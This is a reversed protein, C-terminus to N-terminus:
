AGGPPFHMRVVLGGHEGNFIHLGARHGQLIGMVSALGLGRGLERTTFFPDCIRELIMAPVGPGEDVLELCVTAPLEPRALPWIGQSAPSPRDAGFDTHLRLRIKGKGPEAAERANAMIAQVVEELRVRDGAIAPVPECSLEVQFTLPMQVQLTAVFAPLWAELDLREQRVMARGSFDLMKWSLGIAKRLSAEAKGLMLRLGANDGAKIAAVELFGLVGQFINNFDHAISGAMLVLSEAKQARLETAETKKRATVDQAFALMTPQGDVTVPRGLVEVSLVSGDLALLRQELLPAETGTALALRIRESAQDRDDPHVRHLVPQGVLDAATSAKLLRLAAPNLYIFRGERHLFLPVPGDEIVARFRAESEELLLRSEQRETVDTSIGEWLVSGDPQPRPKSRVRFWRWRGDVHRQRLDMAFPSFDRGSAAEAELYAPLMAPDLQSFLLGPDRVVEEAKLGCLREVGASLYLFRPAEGPRSLFQYLFSDPLQDGLIRLRAESLRLAEEAARRHTIDQVIGSAEKLQGQQTFQFLVRVSLWRIEDGVVVRHEWECPGVGAVAAEWASQVFARDEPHMVEFGSEMTIPHDSDYGYLRRLGESVSWNETGNEYIVHWSGFDGIQQALALDAESRRLSAETEFRDTMDHIISLLVVRGDREIPSSHVEVHHLRGDAGRHVFQFAGQHEAVARAMEAVVLSAPATNISQIDMQVLTEIPWGYFQAAAPNAELILGDAPDLILIVSRNKEFFARFREESLRLETERLRATTIDEVMSLHRASAGAAVPLRVMSLRAWVEHGDRHLYRKEKHVVPVAGSALERVSALDDELHEPHTLSQFDRALFEGPSYGLIDGLHANVSLFRGSESDVVAMGFPAKEFLARFQAETALLEEGRLRALLRARAEAGHLIVLLSFLLLSATLGGLLIEWHQKRGAEVYFSANPHIHTRWTRGAVEFTMVTSSAKETQSHGPDSDFLAIPAGAGTVDFLALDMTKLDRALTSEVLDAMRLPFTTWGRLAKRRQDVTDLPQGELYVPTFLVLGSQPDTGSEQYLTLPGSLTGLGQNRARLMAERRSPEMLMDKGFARQNRADMPELYVISSHGEPDPTLPGGPTVEYDPFGERRLRQLHAGLEARPIWEVFSLGQFGPYTATLNLSTVYARWEARSPLPGRGLYGAAGHLVQSLDKMRDELQKAMGRTQAAQLGTLRATEARQVVMWVLATLVIGLCLGVWPWPSRIPRVPVAVNPTITPVVSCACPTLLAGREM